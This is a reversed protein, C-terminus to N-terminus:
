RAETSSSEPTVQSCMSQTTEDVDYKPYTVGPVVVDGNVAGSQDALGEGLTYGVVTAAAMIIAVVQTASGESAGCYVMIMFVLTALSMWFKRSTLKRIIDQKTVKDNCDVGALEDRSVKMAM